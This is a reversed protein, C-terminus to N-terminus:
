VAKKEFAIVQGSKGINIRDRNRAFAKKALVSADEGTVQVTTEDFMGMTRAMSDVTAKGNKIDPKWEKYDDSEIDKQEETRPDDLCLSVIEKYYQQVTARDYLLVDARDKLLEALKKKVYKRNFINTAVRTLQEVPLGMHILPSYNARLLTKVKDGKCEEDIVFLFCIREEYPTINDENKKLESNEKHFDKDTPM